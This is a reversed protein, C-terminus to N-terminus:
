LIESYAAKCYDPLTDSWPMVSEIQEDSLNAGLEPLTNLLFLLYGYIDLGNRKATEIISMAAASADAGKETDSFLFNKRNIVFPKVTREALNNTLEVNPHDLFVLLETKQNQAYNVAENLHSGKSPKLSGIFDYFEEIIPKVKEQRMKLIEDDNYKEERATKELKFAKDILMVAHAAKCKKNKPPISDFFKRRCHAWCGANIYDGDGYAVYGDTQVIGKYGDLMEKATSKKRDYRFNYIAINRSSKAGTTCVWMQCKKGNPKGNINLVKIETEDMNLVPEEFSFKWFQKLLPAFWKGSAIVWNAMATRNIYIGQSAWYKEQRYLPVGLQYKKQIIDAILSSDALGKPVVSAPVKGPAAIVVSKEANKDCHPCMYKMREYEVMYVRGPIVAIRSTIHEPALERLEGMCEPCTCKDDDLRFTIKKKPLADHLKRGRHPHSKKAKEDIIEATPEEATEDSQEEAENVLFTEDVATQGDIHIYKSRESKKGFLMQNRKLLQETLNDIELTKNELEINKTEIEITKTELQKELESCKESMSEYAKKLEDYTM